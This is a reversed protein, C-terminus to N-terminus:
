VLYACAGGEGRSTKVAPCCLVALDEIKTWVEFAWYPDERRVRVQSSCSSLTQTCTGLSPNHTTIPTHTHPHLDAQSFRARARTGSTSRENSPLKRGKKGECM